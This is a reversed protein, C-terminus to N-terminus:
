RKAWVLVFSDFSKWCHVHWYVSYGRIVMVGDWRWGSRSLMELSRDIGGVSRERDMVSWRFADRDFGDSLTLLRCGFSWFWWEDWCLMCSFSKLRKEFSTSMTESRMCRSTWTGAIFESMQLLLQIQNEDYRTPETGKSILPLDLLAVWQLFTSWDVSCSMPQQEKSTMPVTGPNISPVFVISSPHPVLLDYM